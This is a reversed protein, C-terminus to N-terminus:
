SRIIHWRTAKMSLRDTSGIGVATMWWPGPPQFRSSGLPLGKPHRNSISAHEWIIVGQRYKNKGKGRIFGCWFPVTEQHHVQDSQCGVAPSLLSGCFISYRVASNSLTSDSRETKKILLFRYFAKRRYENNSIRKKFTEKEILSAVEADIWNSPETKWSGCEM